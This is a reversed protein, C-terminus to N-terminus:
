IPFTAGIGAQTVTHIFHFGQGRLVTYGTGIAAFLLSCLLTLGYM